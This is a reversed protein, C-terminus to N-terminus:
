IKGGELLRMTQVWLIKATDDGLNQMTHPRTSFYHFSDGVNLLEKKDEVQLLLKGKLVYGIEEGEHTIFPPSYHPPYEAIVAELVRDPMGGSILNYTVHSDEIRIRNRPYGAKLVLPGDTVAAFFHTLPIGLAGCIAHLSSISISSLGREVQSLFGVSLKCRASFEELTWGKQQRLTRIRRGVHKIDERM